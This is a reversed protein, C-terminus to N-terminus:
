ENHLDPFQTLSPLLGMTGLDLSETNGVVDWQDLGVTSQTINMWTFRDDSPSPAIM